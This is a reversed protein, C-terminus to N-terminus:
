WPGVVVLTRQAKQRSSELNTGKTTTGLSPTRSMNGLSFDLETMAESLFSTPSVAKTEKEEENTEEKLEKAWRELIEAVRRYNGDEANSFKCMGCHDAHISLTPYDLLKASEEPM